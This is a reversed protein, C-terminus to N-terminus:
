LQSPAIDITDSRGRNVVAALLFCTGQGSVRAVEEDANEHM